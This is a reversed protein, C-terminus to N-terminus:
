KRATIVQQKCGLMLGPKLLILFATDVFRYGHVAFDDSMLAGDVIVVQYYCDIFIIILFVLEKNLVLRLSNALTHDEDTVSFTSASPNQYSGHEM